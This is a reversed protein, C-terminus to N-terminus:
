GERTIVVKGRAKKDAVLAVAEPTQAFDYTSGIHPVLVGDRFLEALHALQAGDPRLFLFRYDVGARRAAARHKRSLLSMVPALLPKGAQRAFAPTPPGVVSVVTGGPRTVGFSKLQNEGGVTELVVDMGSVVTSFDTTRYDVVHTAGFGRVMEVDRGSCTATVEAGLHAALQVAISGLGGAGGHVLVKMGPRVPAVETFAQWATEAVLPLSGAEAFSLNAPKTAIDAARVVVREAFSGSSHGGPRAFVEDGVQWQSVNAGVALVVGALDNGLVHPMAVPLVQKFEGRAIMLDVPNVSTARMDVLVDDPGILPEDLDLPEVAATGYSTVGFAHM